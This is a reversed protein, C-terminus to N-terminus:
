SNVDVGFAFGTIECFMELHFLNLKEVLVSNKAMIILPIVEEDEIDHQHNEYSSEGGLWM